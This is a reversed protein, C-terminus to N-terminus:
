SPELAAAALTTDQGHRLDALRDFCDVPNFGSGISRSEAVSAIRASSPPLAGALHPSRSRQISDTIFIRSRAWVPM